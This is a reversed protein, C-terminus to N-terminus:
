GRQLYPKPAPKTSPKVPLPPPPKKDCKGTWCVDEVQSCVEEYKYLKCPGKVKVCKKVQEYEKCEANVYKCDVEKTEYKACVDTPVYKCDGQYYAYEQCGSKIVECDEGYETCKGYADYKACEGNPKCVKKDAFVKCYKKRECKKEKKYEVCEDKTECVKNQRYAKCKGRSNTCKNNYGYERCEDTKVQKCEDKYTCVKKDLKVCEWEYGYEKECEDYKAYPDCYRPAELCQHAFCEKVYACKEKGYQDKDCVRKNTCVPEDLAECDYYEPCEDGDKTCYMPAKEKEGTLLSRAGRLPSAEAVAALALIVLLTALKM